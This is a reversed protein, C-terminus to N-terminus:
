FACVLVWISVGLSFLSAVGVYLLAFALSSRALLFLILLPGTVGLFLGWPSLLLNGVGGLSPVGAGGARPAPSAAAPKLRTYGCARCSDAGGPMPQGCGPCAPHTAPELAM